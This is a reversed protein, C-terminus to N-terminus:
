ALVLGRENGRIEPWDVPRDAPVQRYDVLIEEREPDEVAVFYGPGTM